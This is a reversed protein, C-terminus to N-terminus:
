RRRALVLQVCTQIPNLKRIGELFGLTLMLRVVRVSITGFDRYLATASVM